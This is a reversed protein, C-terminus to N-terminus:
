EKTAEADNDITRTINVKDMVLLSIVKARKISFQNFKKINIKM